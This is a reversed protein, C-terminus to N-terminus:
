HPKLGDFTYKFQNIDCVLVILVFKCGALVYKELNIVDFQRWFSTKDVIKVIKLRNNDNQGSLHPKLGCFTYKFQNLDCLLVIFVFKCGAM